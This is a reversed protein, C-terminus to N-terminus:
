VDVVIYYTVVKLTNAANGGGYPTIDNYNGYLKLPSNTDSTVRTSDYNSVITGAFTGTVNSVLPLQFEIIQLTPNGGALPQQVFSLNSANDSGGTKIYWVADTTGTYYDSVGGPVKLLGIVKVPVILTNAGQAAVLELGSENAPLNKIEDNTFTAEAKVLYSSGVGSGGPNAQIYDAIQNIIERADAKATINAQIQEITLAM